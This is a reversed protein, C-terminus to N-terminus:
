RYKMMEVRVELLAALVQDKLDVDTPYLGYYRARSSINKLECYQDYISRTESHLVLNNDRSRHHSFHTGRTAFFAEVYHLAAYFAATSAWGRAVGSSLDLSQVFHENQRAIELHEIKDPM